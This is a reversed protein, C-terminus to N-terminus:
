LGDPSSLTANVGESDAGRLYRPEALANLAAERAGPPLDRTRSRFAGSVSLGLLARLEAQAGTSLDRGLSWALRRSLYRGSTEKLPTRTAAAAALVLRAPTALTTGPGPRRPAPTGGVQVAPDGSVYAHFREAFRAPRVKLAGALAEADIWSPWAAGMADRHTSWEWELPDAVLRDRCPNLHVYRTQRLLHLGNPVPAGEPVPNWVRTGPHVARTWSRLVVALRRRLTREPATAPALVHVHEPMLVCAYVRAFEDRLMRWARAFADRSRFPRLPYRAQAVLHYAIPKPM